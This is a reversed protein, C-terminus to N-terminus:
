TEQIFGSVTIGVTDHMGIEQPGAKNVLDVEFPGIPIAGFVRTQPVRVGRM